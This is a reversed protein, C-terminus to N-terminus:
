TNTPKNTKANQIQQNLTPLARKVGTFMLGIFIGVNIMTNKHKEKFAHCQQLTENLFYKVGPEILTPKATPNYVSHYM